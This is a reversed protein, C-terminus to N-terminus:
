RENFIFDLNQPRYLEFKTGSSILPPMKKPLPKRPFLRLYFGVGAFKNLLGDADM